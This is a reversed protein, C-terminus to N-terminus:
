TSRSNSAVGTWSWGSRTPQTEPPPPWSSAMPGSPGSVCPSTRRRPTCSLQCWWRWTCAATTPFSPLRQPLFALADLSTLWIGLLTLIPILYSMISKQWYEILWALQEMSGHAQTCVMVPNVQGPELAFIHVQTGRWGWERHFTYNERHKSVDSSPGVDVGWFSAIFCSKTNCIGLVNQPYAM